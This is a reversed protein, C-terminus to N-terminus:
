MTGKRAGGGGEQVRWVLSGLSEDLLEPFWHTEQVPPDALGVALVAFSFIQWIDSLTHKQELALVLPILSNFLMTRLDKRIDGVKRLLRLHETDQSSLTTSSLQCSIPGERKLRINRPLHSPDM